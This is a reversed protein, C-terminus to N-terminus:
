FLAKELAVCEPDDNKVSNVRMSVPEAKMAEAPYPQLLTQLRDKDTMAPDLWLGYDAPDLIVPMRDHVNASLANAATTVITCSELPPQDEPTGAPGRWREWLGAFAFPREDQMRFWLPQKKKGVAKWEFYGDALVLCRRRAFATRFAPKEAVTEGRANITSAALKADKAWSPILGWHLLALRRPGGPELQRVAAITQTPAINYRPALKLDAPLDGLEFLFQQALVSLPTRLTYRGCM